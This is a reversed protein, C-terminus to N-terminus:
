KRVERNKREKNSGVNRGERMREKRGEKYRYKM